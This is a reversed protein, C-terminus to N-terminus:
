ESSLNLIRLDDTEIEYHNAYGNVGESCAWEKALEIHETCYFGQGYDNYIKRRGFVPLEIIESSGHYITLKSM